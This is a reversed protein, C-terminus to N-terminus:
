ILQTGTYGGLGVVTVSVAGANGAPNITLSAPAVTLSFYDITENYTVTAVASQTYRLANAVADCARQALLYISPAHAVLARFRHAPQEDM